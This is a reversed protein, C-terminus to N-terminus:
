GKGTSDLGQCYKHYVFFFYPMKMKMCDHSMNSSEKSFRSLSLRVFSIKKILTSM